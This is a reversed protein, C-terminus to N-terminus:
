AIVGVTGIWSPGVSGDATSVWAPTGDPLTVPAYHNGGLLARGPGVLPTEAWAASDVGRSHEVIRYPSTDDNPSPAPALCLGIAFLIAGFWFQLAKSTNM